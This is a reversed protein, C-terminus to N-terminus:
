HTEGITRTSDSLLAQSGVAELVLSLWIHALDLPLSLSVERELCEWSPSGDAEM